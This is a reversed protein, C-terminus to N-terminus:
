RGDASCPPSPSLPLPPSPSLPLPRRSPTPNHSSFSRLTPLRTRAHPCMLAGKLVYRAHSVRFSGQTAPVARLIVDATSGPLMTVDLPSATFAAVDETASAPKAPRIELRLDTLKLATSLRNRLRAKVIVSEGCAVRFASGSWQGPRNSRVPKSSGAVSTVQPPHLAFSHTLSAATAGYAPHMDALLQAWADALGEYGDEEGKKLARREVWSKEVDLLAGLDEAVERLRRADLVLSVDGSAGNLSQLLELSSLDVEPVPLGYVETHGEPLQDTPPAAADDMGEMDLLDVTAPPHLTILSPPLDRLLVANTACQAWGEHVTLSGWPSETVQAPVGRLLDALVAETDEMAAGCVNNEDLLVAALSKLTMLVARAIHQNERDSDAGAAALARTRGRHKLELALSRTLTGKIYGWRSKEYVLLANLFCVVAHRAPREGCSQYKYGSLSEYFAFKRSQGAILFSAAARETLMSCLLSLKPASSAAQPHPPPPQVSLNLFKTRHSDHPPSVPSSSFSPANALKHTYTHRHTQTDTHMHAHTCPNCLFHSHYHSHYWKIIPSVSAYM